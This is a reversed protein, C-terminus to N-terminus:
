LTAAAPAAQRAARGLGRLQSISQQVVPVLEPAEAQLSKAPEGSQLAELLSLCAPADGQGLACMAMTYIAPGHQPKIQLAHEAFVMASPQDGTGLALTALDSLADADQPNARLASQLLSVAEDIRGAAGAVYAAHRLQPNSLGPSPARPQVAAPRAQAPTSAASLAPLTVFPEGFLHLWLREYIYGYNMDARALMEMKELHRRGTQMFNAIRSNRVAFIAGYSFVGIDAGTAQVALDDLGVFEFFHQAINTGNPLLHKQRYFNGIGWAGEDFFALPAWTTLSYHETRVPIDEIWDRQDEETLKTPPIKKEALWHLALPQVDRWLHPVQILDLFYPAHEFPDGQTFVTFDGANADADFNTMLHQLYTGSERGANKLPIVKVDNRRLVGPEIEPGKNYLFIRADAPLQNVWGIDEKFRAIVFTLM